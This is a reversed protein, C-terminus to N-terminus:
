KDRGFLNKFSDLAEAAKIGVSTGAGPGLIATGAVAGALAAKSPLVVPKSVTGSVDLPIAVLSVSNKIAVSGTGDLAKNPKIKVQGTATLLGSSINLDRLHYQKGSINLLGSFASFQTDGGNQSQKILLSAVKVLDLGHLIGNNIKFKFNAQLRDALQGVEKASASFNGDAFLHGSLYVARSIMRTPEKVSLGDIKLYGKTKWNSAGKGEQWTLVANGALKGGYLAADIKPITLQNGKLHMELKAKDILLPLGIPLTWKDANVTILHEGGNPAVDVKLKGDVSEIHASDLQNLKTLAIEANLIPMKIDPWIFQMEQIDIRSVNIAVVEAKESKNATLASVISLASKKIAPKIVKLNIQKTASFLSSLTPVIVLKEVVVEQSEGVVIGSAVLRPSPLFRLHGNAITVPVGLKESAISEAKRIYTQTPLSFPLIILAIIVFMVAFVIKKSNKM